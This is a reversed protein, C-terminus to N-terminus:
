PITPRSSGASTAAPRRRRTGRPATAPAAPRRRTPTMLPRVRAPGGRCTRPRRSIGPRLVRSAASRPRAGARREPAPRPSRRHRRRTRRAARHRGPHVPPPLPASSHPPRRRRRHDPAPAAPPHGAGAFPRDAQDPLTPDAGQGGQGPRPCDFRRLIEAVFACAEARTRPQVALPRSGALFEGVQAPTRLRQTDLTVIM